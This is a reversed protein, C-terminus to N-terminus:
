KPLGPVLRPNKALPMEAIGVRVARNVPSKLFADIVEAPALKLRRGLEIPRQDVAAVEVISLLLPVAAVAGIEPEVGGHGPHLLALGAVLREEAVQRRVGRM